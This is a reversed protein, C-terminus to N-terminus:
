LTCAPPEENVYFDFNSKSYKHRNLWNNIDIDVQETNEGSFDIRMNNTTNVIITKVM